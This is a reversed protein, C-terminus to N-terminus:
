LRRTSEPDDGPGPPPIPPFHIGGQDASQGGHYSPGPSGYAPSVPTGYAPSVPSQPPASSPYGPSSSPPSSTPYGPSNSPPPYTSGYSPGSSVPAPYSPAAPQQFAPAPAVPPPSYNPGPAVAAPASGWRRWRRPSFVTALLPGGFILSFPGAAALGAGRVGLVDDPMTDVFNSPAFFSWMAVAMFLLGLLVLGLPSLRALLLLAYLGGAALGAALMIGFAAYKDGGDSLRAETWKGACIGALVYILAGAVLSLLLSGLHRM